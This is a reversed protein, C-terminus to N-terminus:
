RLKCPPPEALRRAPIFHHHHHHHHYLLVFYIFTPRQLESIRISPPPLPCHYLLLPLQQLLPLLLLVHVLTSQESFCLLTNNASPCPHATKQKVM